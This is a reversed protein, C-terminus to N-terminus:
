HSYRNIYRGFLELEVFGDKLPIHSYIRGRFVTELDGTKIVIDITEAQKYQSSKPALIKISIEEPSITNACDPCFEKVSKNPLKVFCWEYSKSGCKYCKQSLDLEEKM